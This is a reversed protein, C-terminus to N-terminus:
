RMRPTSGHRERGSLAGLGSCRSGLFACCLFASVFAFAFSLPGLLLDCRMAPLLMTIIFAIIVAIAIVIAIAIAIIIAITVFASDAAGRRAEARRGGHHIVRRLGRHSRDHRITLLPEVFGHHFHAFFAVLFDCNHPRLHGGDLSLKKLRV